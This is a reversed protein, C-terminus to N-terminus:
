FKFIGKLIATVAAGAALLAGLWKFGTAVVTVKHAAKCESPHTMVKDRMFQVEERLITVEEQLLDTRQIHKQVDGNLESQREEIKGLRQDTYEQKVLIQKAVDLIDTVQEHLREERTTM